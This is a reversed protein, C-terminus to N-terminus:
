EGDEFGDSETILARELIVRGEQSIHSGCLLSFVCVMM